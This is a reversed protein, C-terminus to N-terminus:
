EAARPARLRALEEGLYDALLGMASVGAAVEADGNYNTNTNLDYTYARGARDRVLEFAAVHIDNAAMVEAYRGILPDDFGDIIQFMPVDGAPADDVRCADAPCLEFGESTDVRVAYVFRRGIFEVRVICREPAEIYEQVLMVGDVSPQFAPGDLHRALTDVDHFLKVGLGRGARNDKTIFPGDFRRAAALIDDRAVAATTRPHAIGHRALAAYQAMKSVELALARSGNLVRRGHGELWGLVAATFEPAFRHDRTHSSASMRNYFVGTPPTEALDLVGRALHWDRFPLRRAELAAILPATWADNEHLIHIHAM